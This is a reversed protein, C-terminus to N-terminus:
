VGQLYKRQIVKTEQSTIVHCSLLVENDVSWINLYYLLLPTSLAVLHLMIARSIDPLQNHVIFFIRTHQLLCHLAAHSLLVVPVVYPVFM